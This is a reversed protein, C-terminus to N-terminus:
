HAACPFVRGAPRERERERKEWDISNLSGLFQVSGAGSVRLWGAKENKVEFRLDSGEM